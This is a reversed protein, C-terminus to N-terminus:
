RALPTLAQGATFEVAAALIPNNPDFVLNVLGCGFAPQNVREGPSPSSCRCSRAM